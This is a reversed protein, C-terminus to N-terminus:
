LYKVTYNLNLNLYIIRVAASLCCVSLNVHGMVVSVLYLNCKALLTLKESYSDNVIFLFM